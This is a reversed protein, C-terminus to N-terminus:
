PLGERLARVGLRAYEPKDTEIGFRVDEIARFIAWPKVREVVRADVPGEYRDVVARLFPEGGWTYLGIFDITPDGVAVDGWDIVGTVEFSNEDLLIHEAAFDSHTLTHPWPASTLREISELYARYRDVPADADARRVFPLSKLAGKRLEEVYAALDMTEAGLSVAREAPFRHVACLFAGLQRALADISLRPRDVHIGAVGPLKRYGSFRFAYEASPAGDFSFRPIAIPLTPAILPLVAREVLLQREVEARKPFRFIWEGNVEFAWSDEGEGAFQAHV